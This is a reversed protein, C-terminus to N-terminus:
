MIDMGDHRAGHVATTVRKTRHGPSGPSIGLPRVAHSGGIVLGSNCQMASLSADDHGCKQRQICWPSYMIYGHFCTVNDVSTDIFSWVGAICFRAIFNCCLIDHLFAGWFRM